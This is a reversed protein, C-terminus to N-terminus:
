DKAAKAAALAARDEAETKKGAGAAEVVIVDDSDDIDIDPGDLVGAEATTTATADAYDVGEPRALSLYYSRIIVVMYANFFVTPILSLLNAFSGGALWTIIIMLVTIVFDIV